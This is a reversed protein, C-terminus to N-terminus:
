DIHKKVASELEFEVQKIVVEHSFNQLAFGRIKNKDFADYNDIMKKMGLHLADVDDTKVLIGNEKTIVDDPMIDTSVVPLGCSLAELAVQACAEARSSLVFASSNQLEKLLEPRELRGTFRVIKELNLKKNLNLLYDKQKGEGVITLYIQQKDTYLKAFANLLVDMGKVPLLYGVMIFRFTKDKPNKGDGPVFFNTDILNPIVKIKPNSDKKIYEKMKPILLKSVPIICAANSLVPTLFKFNWKAFFHKTFLSNVFRARHETIVYPINYKKYILFASIGAWMAAHVHIVDPKFEKLVNKYFVSYIKRTYLYTNLKEFKPLKLYIGRYVILNNEVHKTIKNRFLIDTFTTKKLSKYEIAIVRVENNLKFLEESQSKAFFVKPGNVYWSPLVLIKM